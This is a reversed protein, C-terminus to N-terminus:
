MEQKLNKEINEFHSVIGSKDLKINILVEEACLKNLFDLRKNRSEIIHNNSNMSNFDTLNQIKFSEELTELDTFPANQNILFHYFQPTISKVQKVLHVTKGYPMKSSVASM